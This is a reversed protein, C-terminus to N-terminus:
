RYTDIYTQIPLITEGNTNYDIEQAISRTIRLYRILIEATWLCDIVANHAGTNPFGFYEKVSSLSMQGLARLNEFFMFVIQAVDIKPFPRFITEGGFKYPEKVIKLNKLEDKIEEISKEKLAKQSPLKETIAFESKMNGKMLRTMIEWDFDTNFGCFVPADWKEGTPNHYKMFNIYDGMVKKPSPANRLEDLSLNNTALAKPDIPSLGFEECRDDPCPQILSYFIGNEAITLRRPDIIVTAISLPQHRGDTGGTEFDTIAFKNHNISM